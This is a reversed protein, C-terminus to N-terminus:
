SVMTGIFNGETPFPSMSTNVLCNLSYDDEVLLGIREKYKRVCKGYRAPPLASGMVYVDVSNVNVDPSDVTCALYLKHNLYNAELVNTNAVGNVKFNVAWANIMLDSGLQKLLLLAEPDQFLAENPVDLIRTRIFEKQQKIDEPTCNPDKEVPFFNLTTSYWDQNEMTAWHCWM